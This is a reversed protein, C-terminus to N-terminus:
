PISRCSPSHHLHGRPVRRCINWPGRPNGCQYWVANYCCYYTGSVFVVSCDTNTGYSCATGEIAQFDPDGDYKVAPQDYNNCDVAATQPIYTDAIADQAQQTGPVSALVKAKPSNTPISAFDGPLHDPAVYTWPGNPSSASYWRGSLLVFTQQTDIQLFVDSDTNAWYLLGTGPITSM